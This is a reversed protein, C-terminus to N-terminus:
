NGGNENDGSRAFATAFDFKVGNKEGENVDQNTNDAIEDKNAGVGFIEVGM